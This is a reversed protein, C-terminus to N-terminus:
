FLLRFYAGFYKLMNQIIFLLCVSAVAAVLLASLAIVANEFFIIKRKESVSAGVQALLRFERKRDRYSALANNAYGLFAFIVVLVDLLILVRIYANAAEVYSSFLEVFRVVFASRSYKEALDQTVTEASVEALCANEKIGLGSLDTFVIALPTDLYSAVTFVTEVGGVELLIPDGVSVGAQMALGRGIALRREGRVSSVDLDISGVDMAVAFDEARLAVLTVQRTGQALSCKQEIYALYTEKVGEEAVVESRIARVDESEASIVVDARFLRELSSLQAATKGSITAVSIVVTLAIVLLRAGSQAHRNERAGAAAIYLAGVASKESFRMILANAGKILIPMVAFLLAFLAIAALIGSALAASVSSLASWLFLAVFLGGTILVPLVQPKRVSSSSQMMEYLPMKGVRWVPIFASLLALLVGFLVGLSATGFTISVPASATGIMLNMLAAVGYSAAVGLLSGLVAYLAIEAFLYFFLAGSSAGVSRFLSALSLRNKMVLTVATYILIVGLVAVLGVLAFLVTSEYRLTTALAEENVPSAFTFSPALRGLTAAIEKEAIGLAETKEESLEIFFRNRIRVDEPMSLLRATVTDSLLIDAQLFPGSEEAIGVVEVTSKRESGYVSLGMRDGTKVGIKEAFAARLIVGTAKSSVGGSVFKCDNYKFLDSIDTSYARAFSETGGTATLYSYYGSHLTGYAETKERLTRYEASDETTYYASFADSFSAELACEGALARYSATERKEVSVRLSFAAVFVAVALLVTAVILIPEGVKRKVSRLLSRVFM